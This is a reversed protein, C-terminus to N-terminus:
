LEGFGPTKSTVSQGYFTQIDKINETIPTNKLSKPNPSLAEVYEMTDPITPPEIDSPYTLRVM